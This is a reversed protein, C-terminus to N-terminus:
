SVTVKINQRQNERPLLSLSLIGNDLSATINEGDVSPPLRFTAQYNPMSFETHLAKFGEFSPVTSTGKVTLLRNELEIELGDSSVGPVEAVIEYGKERSYIEYNPVVVRRRSGSAKKAVKPEQTEEAQTTQTNKEELVAQTM